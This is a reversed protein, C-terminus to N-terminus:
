EPIQPVDGRTGQRLIWEILRDFYGAAHRGALRRGDPGQEVAIIGHDAGPFVVVDLSAGRDQLRRLNALTSAHPAETDDGALLWLQPVALRGIVPLPDYALDYPFDFLARMEGMREAPTSVLRGTFDGGMAAFWPEARYRAALRELEELGEGFRSVMVRAAAVHLSDGAALVQPGYGGAALAQAVEQRDEELMSIALGYSVVVFDAPSRTAALPAVWGGQSEGMLGLPVGRLEARGRVTAAAAAMDDALTNIDATYRGTSRGTGQKDFVFVAIGRLPLLHQLFNYVVASERGSGYQLVVAARPPVAAPLVLEGYLTVDGSTFAVPTTPLPVRRGEIGATGERRLRLTGAGCAGFEVRLAVPTRVSWGEGSEYRGDGAPYLTGSAGDLTRYRLDPADKPSIVLSSGDAMAYAGSHCAGDHHVAPPLPEQAAAAFPLAGLFLALLPFRTKPMSDLSPFPRRGLGAALRWLKQNGTFFTGPAAHTM